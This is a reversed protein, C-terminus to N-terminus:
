KGGGWECISNVIRGGSRFAGSIDLFRSRGQPPSSGKRIRELLTPGNGYLFRKKVDALGNTEVFASRFPPLTKMM